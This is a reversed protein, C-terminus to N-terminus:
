FTLFEIDSFYLGETIHGKTTQICFHRSNLLNWSQDALLQQKSVQVILMSTNGSSVLSM